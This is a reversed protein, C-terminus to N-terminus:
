DRQYLWPEYYKMSVFAANSGALNLAVLLMSPSGVNNIVMDYNCPIVVPPEIAHVISAAEIHSLNHFGGNICIAYIDVELPWLEPPREAFATDGTNFFTTGNAFRLLLGIHNLGTRDTPLVFVGQVPVSEGVHRTEGSHLLRVNTEPMGCARSIRCSDFPRIFLSNGTHMRAIAERDAHDQHSHATVLIDLDRDEPEIFVPLQRDLRFPMHAFEATCSNTLYPDISIVLGEEFRHIFSNQGFYWIAFTKASPRFVRIFRIFAECEM